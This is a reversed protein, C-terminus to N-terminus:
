KYPLITVINDKISFRALGTIEMMELLQRIPINREVQGTFYNSYAHMGPAYVVEVNYWRSLVAFLEGFSAQHFVFNGNKWATIAELDAASEKVQSGNITLMKGPQLVVGNKGAGVKIAGNVLAAEWQVEEPYAKVNFATGMVQIEKDRVAVIFPKAADKAVDFYVEGTVTVRREKGTFRTPFHISSAANLWVKTGDDLQMHYEGGKPTVLALQQVANNDHVSNGYSFVGKQQHIQTNDVLTFSTDTGTGLAVSSGNAMVLQAKQTGPLIQQRVPKKNDALEAKEGNTMQMVMLVGAILLAIAAAISYAVMGTRKRSRHEVTRKVREYAAHSNVYPHADPQGKRAVLEEFLQKNGESAAIWQQLTERDKEPLRNELYASILGAIELSHILQEKAM